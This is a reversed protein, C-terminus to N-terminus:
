QGAEPGVQDPDLPGREDWAGAILDARQEDTLSAHDARWAPDVPGDHPTPYAPPMGEVPPGTIVEEVELGAPPGAPTTPTDPEAM